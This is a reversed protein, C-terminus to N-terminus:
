EIKIGVYRNIRNVSLPRVRCSLLRLRPCRWRRPFRWRRPQCRRRHWPVVLPARRWPARSAERGASWRQSGRQSRKWPARPRRGRSSAGYAHPSRVRPMSARSWSSVAIAAHAPALRALQGIAQQQKTEVQQSAALMRQETAAARARKGPENGRGRGRSLRRKGGGSLTLPMALTVM